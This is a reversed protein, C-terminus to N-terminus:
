EPASIHRRLVSIEHLGLFKPLGLEVDRRQDARSREPRIVRPLIDKAVPCPRVVDHGGPAFPSEIEAYRERKKQRQRRCEQENRSQDLARRAARRQEPLPTISGVALQELNPLEPGHVHRKAVLM